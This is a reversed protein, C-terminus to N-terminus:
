LTHILREIAEEFTIKYGAKNLDEVVGKIEMIVGADHLDM